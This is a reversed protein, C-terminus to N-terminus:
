GYGNGTDAGRDTTEAVDDLSQIRCLAHLDCHMCSQADRPLVHAEGRAFDAALAGFRRAWDAEVDDWTEIEANRLGAASKLPPWADTDAALGKVAIEGAKMQAYVTARVAPPDAMARLALAYLGVQTGSPRPAFWKAPEVARGSKYDIIAVGGDALTDVRDIRLSIGIGGLTLPLKMETARVVFPPREREVADLWARVIDALRQSEGVSVAAPLSQWRGPDLKARALTVAKAIRDRLQANDQGVLTAHDGVDEWLAALASHLLLGREQPTLGDGLPPWADARMRYRAFAQFPCSSQSEIIGVGGRTERGDALPPAQEDDCTAFEAGQTAIAGALGAIPPLTAAVREPWAAVLASGARDLGDVRQAHSAVVESAAGCFGETLMRAHTLDGAAGSGPVGHERQWVLPLMPHPANAPPWSEANMGTIWLADFVLGSAELLGMIRIRAPPAEPQFVTRAALARLAALADDRALLPTVGEFTAFTALLQSWAEGAQWEGSGLPRTGPWGLAVLRTRWDSAWQAPSRANRAPIAADRWTAALPDSNADLASMVDTLTVRRTGQERWRREAMARGTWRAEADPLHPSRLLSAAQPMPLAGAGLAILDIATAVMPVGALAIGLSIDYPRPADPQVRSALAPCLIDEARAAVQDRRSALDAVVIAVDADANALARDRAWALAQGLEVEPTACVVRSQRASAAQPLTREVIDAGADRLAALLRQQQPAFEIFGVTVIRRDRWAPVRMACAALRDALQAADVLGNAALAARYRQAWRAFAAADDGIGAHSWGDFRDDPLRWAHFLSWADAASEAAGRADLLEPSERAVIRDWLHAAVGTGILIQPAPLADAALADLWLTQLWGQWPMARGAVWARRGAALQARDCGAVFRRALRKNPTVLTTGPALAAAFDFAIM